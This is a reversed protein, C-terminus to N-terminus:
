VLNERSQLESTHEESRVIIQDREFLLRRGPIGEILRGKEYVLNGSVMTYVITSSFTHNDFPSWGCKSRINSKTVKYPTKTDVLLIPLADHLSLTYNVTT